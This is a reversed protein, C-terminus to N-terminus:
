HKRLRLPTSLPKHLLVQRDGLFSYGAQSLSDCTRAIEGEGLGAETASGTKIYRSRWYNEGDIVKMVAIDKDAFQVGRSSCAKRLKVFRHGYRRTITEPDLGAGRLCSKLYLEVAHYYLFRIPAEFHLPKAKRSRICDAAHRYSEAFNYLGTATTRDGDAIKMPLM